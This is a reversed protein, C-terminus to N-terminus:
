PVLYQLKLGFLRNGEVELENTMFLRTVESTNEVFTKWGKETFKMRADAHEAPAEEFGLNENMRVTWTGGGEGAVSIEITAGVARLTSANKELGQPIIAAFDEQATTM